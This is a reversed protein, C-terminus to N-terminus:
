QPSPASPAATAGGAPKKPRSQPAPLPPTQPATLQLHESLYEEKLKNAVDVVLVLTLISLVVTLWILRRTLQELSKSSNILVGFQRKQIEVNLLALQDSHDTQLSWYILSELDAGRAALHFHEKPFPQLERKM